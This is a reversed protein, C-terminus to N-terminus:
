NVSLARMCWGIPNVWYIWVLYDPIESKPISFTSTPKAIDLNPCLATLLFFWTSLVQNTLTLLVFYIIYAGANAVFGCMWYVLLGFIIIKAKAARSTHLQSGLSAGVLAQLQPSLTHLLTQEM